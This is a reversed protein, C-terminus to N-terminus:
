DQNVIIWLMMLNDNRLTLICVYWWTKCSQKFKQFHRNPLSLESDDSWRATTSPYPILGPWQVWNKKKPCIRVNESSICGLFPVQHNLGAQSINPLVLLCSNYPGPVEWIRHMRIWPKSLCLKETGPPAGLLSGPSAPAEPWPVVLWGKKLACVRPDPLVPILGLEAM